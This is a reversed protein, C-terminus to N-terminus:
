CFYNQILRRYAVALKRFTRYMHNIVVQVSHCCVNRVEIVVLDYPPDRPPDHLLKQFIPLELLHCIPLGASELWFSIMDPGSVISAVEFTVNNSIEPLTGLLSYEHYNPLKQKLQFHSYVDVQHGKAALGRMLEEGMVYHSRMQFPFLGLVRLSAIPQTYFLLTILITLCLNAPFKM